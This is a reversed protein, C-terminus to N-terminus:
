FSITSTRSFVEGKRQHYTIAFSSRTIILLLFFLDLVFSKINILNKKGIKGSRPSKMWQLYKDTGQSDMSNNASVADDVLHHYNNIDYVDDVLHHYNNM